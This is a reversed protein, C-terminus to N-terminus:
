IMPSTRSRCNLWVGQMIRTITEYAPFTLDALIVEDGGDIFAQGILLIVNNAGSSVLLMDPDIKLKDGLKRRLETSLGEPYYNTWQSENCIAQRALPSVLPTENSALKLIDKIGSQEQLEEIPKGPIYRPLDLIGKRVLHKYKEM